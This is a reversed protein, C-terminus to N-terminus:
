RAVVEQRHVKNKCSIMSQITPTLFHGKTMMVDCECTDVINITNMPTV